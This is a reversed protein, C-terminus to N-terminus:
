EQPFYTGSAKKFACVLFTFLEKCRISRALTEQLVLIKTLPVRDAAQPSSRRHLRPHDTLKPLM